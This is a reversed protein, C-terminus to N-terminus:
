ASQESAKLAAMFTDYSLGLKAARERSSEAALRIRKDTAVWKRFASSTTMRLATKGFVKGDPDRWQRVYFAREPYRDPKHLSVLRRIEVGEGDWVPEGDDQCYMEYRWGPIWSMAKYGGEENWRNVEERKFPHWREFVAGPVMDGVGGGERSVGTESTM